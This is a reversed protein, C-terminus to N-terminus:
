APGSGAVDRIGAMLLVVTQAPSGGCLPRFMAAKEPCTGSLAAM